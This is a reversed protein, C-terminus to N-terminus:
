AIIQNLKEEIMKKSYEDYLTKFLDDTLGNLITELNFNKGTIRHDTVRNQPFNYTRIKESREGSGVQSKRSDAIDSAQKEKEFEFLRAKLM